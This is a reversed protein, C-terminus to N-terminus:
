AHEEELLAELDEGPGPAPWLKSPTGGAAPQSPAAAFPRNSSKSGHPSLPPVPSSEPASDPSLEFALEDTPASAVATVAGAPDEVQAFAGAALSVPRVLPEDLDAAEAGEPDGLAVSTHAYGAASPKAKPAGVSGVDHEGAAVAPPVRASGVGCDRCEVYEGCQPQQGSGEPEGCRYALSNRTILFGCQACPVVSRDTLGLVLPHAHRRCPGSHDACRECWQSSHIGACAADPCAADHPCHSGHYAGHLACWDAAHCLGCAASDCGVLEDVECREHFLGHRGCRQGAPHRLACGEDTCAAQLPCCPGDSHHTKDGACWPGPHCLDCGPRDCAADRPCPVSHWTGHEGCYGREHFLSCSPDACAGERACANHGGHWAGHSPCWATSHFARCGEHRCECGLACDRGHWRTHAECHPQEHWLPCEARGCSAQLECDRGHWQKHRACYEDRSHYRTCCVDSCTPDLDCDVGHWVRHVSCFLSAHHLACNANKCSSDAACQTVGHFRNHITCWALEHHNRCALDGCGGGLLCDPNHWLQHRECFDVAHKMKCTRVKCQLGYVCEQQRRHSRQEQKDRLLSLEMLDVSVDDDVDDDSSSLCCGM